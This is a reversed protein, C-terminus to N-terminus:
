LIQNLIEELKILEHQYKIRNLTIINLDESSFEPTQEIQPYVWGNATILRITIEIRNELRKSYGYDLNRYGLSERFNEEFISKM